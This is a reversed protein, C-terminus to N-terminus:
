LGNKPDLSAERILKEASGDNRVHKVKSGGEMKLAGTRALKFCLKLKDNIHDYGRAKMWNRVKNRRIARTVSAM